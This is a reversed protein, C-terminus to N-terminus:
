AAYSLGFLADSEKKEDAVNGLMVDLPHVRGDGMDIIGTEAIKSVEALIRDKGLLECIDPLDRLFGRAILPIILKTFSLRFQGMQSHVWRVHGIEDVIIQDFLAEIRKAAEPEDAFLERAQQQLGKFVVLGIAEACLILVNSWYFPLQVLVNLIVRTGFKPPILEMRAGLTRVCDALLRTHYNEEVQVWSYPYEPDKLPKVEFGYKVGYDETLNANAACVAWLTRRDLGKEPKGARQNRIFKEQDLKGKESVLVPQADLQAFFEDRKESTHADFDPRGNRRKLYDIYIRRVQEREAKPLAKFVNKVMIM